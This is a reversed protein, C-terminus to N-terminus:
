TGKKEIVNGRRENLFLIRKANCGMTLLQHNVPYAQWCIMKASQLSTEGGPYAFASLHTLNKGPNWPTIM